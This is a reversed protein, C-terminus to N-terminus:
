ENEKERHSSFIIEFILLIGKRETFYDVFKSIIFTKIEENKNDAKYCIPDCHKMNDQSNDNRKM